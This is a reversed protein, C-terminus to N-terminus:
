KGYYRFVDCRGDSSGSGDEQKKRNEKDNNRNEKVESVAKIM